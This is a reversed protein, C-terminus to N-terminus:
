ISFFCRKQQGDGPQVPTNLIEETLLLSIGRAIREVKGTFSRLQYFAVAYPEFSLAKVAQCIM